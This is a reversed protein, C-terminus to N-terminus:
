DPVELRRFLVMGLVVFLLTTLLLGVVSLLAFSATSAQGSSFFSSILYYSPPLNQPLFTVNALGNPNGVYVRLGAFPLWANEGPLFYALPVRPLSTDRLWALLGESLVAIVWLLLSAPRSRRFVVSFCLAISAFSLFSLALELIALPAWQLNAQPGMTLWSLIIVLGVYLASLPLFIAVKALFKGLFITERRAPQSVLAWLTGKDKERAVSESSSAGGIIIFWFGFISMLLVADEWWTDRIESPIPASGTSNGFQGPPGHSVTLPLLFGSLIALLILIFASFYVWYKKLDWAIEYRAVEGLLALQGREPARKRNTTAGLAGGSGRVFGSGVDLSDLAKSIFIQDILRTFPFLAGPSSPSSRGRRSGLSPLTTHRSVERLPATVGRSLVSPNSHAM